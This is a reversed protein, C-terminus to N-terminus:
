EVASRSPSTPPEKTPNCGTATLETTREKYDLLKRSLVQADRIDGNTLTTRLKRRVERARPNGTRSGLNMWAYAKTRSKEVGRGALYMTALGLAGMPDGQAASRVYWCLAVQDDELVGLGAYYLAGMHAQTRPHGARAAKEMLSAASEYDIKGGIGEHYLIALRRQADIDGRTAARETQIRYIQNHIDALQAICIFILFFSGLVVIFTHEEAFDAWKTRIQDILTNGNESEQPEINGM